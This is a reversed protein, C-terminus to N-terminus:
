RDRLSLGEWCFGAVYAAARLLLLLQLELARGLSPEALAMGHVRLHASPEIRIREGARGVHKGHFRRAGRGYGFHRRAFDRLTLNADHHVIADSVVRLCRGSAVWRDCFDRDESTRLDVAFGGVDAFATAPVAMNGAAILRANPSDPNPRASSAAAILQAASALLSDSLDIRIGGGLAADPDRAHGDALRHLWDAAAVCDDDIFALLEGRAVVAGANRAASPGGNDQRVTTVDIRDRMSTVVPEARERGGDDVVIVEYCEKPYDLAALGALCRRLQRPRDFTPVVVSIQPSPL